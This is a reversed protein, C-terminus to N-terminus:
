REEYEWTMTHEGNQLITYAKGDFSNVSLAFWSSGAAKLTALLVKQIFPAPLFGRWELTMLDQVQTEGHSAPIQYRSLAPDIDDGQQVRPSGSMALTIWEFLEQACEYDKESIDKPIPPSSVEPLTTVQPEVIKISPQHTAIAGSGDNPGKLDYFLWKLSHNLVNRFSWVIREFGHKGRVM